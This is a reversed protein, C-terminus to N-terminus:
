ERLPNANRLGASQHEGNEIESINRHGNILVGMLSPKPRWLFPRDGHSMVGFDAEGAARVGNRGACRTRPRGNVCPPRKAQDIRVPDRCSAPLNKGEEVVTFAQRHRRGQFVLTVWRVFKNGVEGIKTRARFEFERDGTARLAEGGDTAPGIAVNMVVAVELLAKPVARCM